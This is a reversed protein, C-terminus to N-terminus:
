LREGRAWRRKFKEVGALDFFKLISHASKEHTTTESKKIAWITAALYAFRERLKVDIMDDLPSGAQRWTLGLRDRRQKSWTRM